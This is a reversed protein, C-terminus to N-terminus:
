GTTKEGGNQTTYGLYEIGMSTVFSPRSMNMIHHQRYGYFVGRLTQILSKDGLVLMGRKEVLTTIAM